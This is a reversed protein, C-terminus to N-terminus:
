RQRVGFFKNNFLARINQIAGKVNNGKCIHALQRLFYAFFNSDSFSLSVRCLLCDRDNCLMKTIDKSIFEEEKKLTEMMSTLVAHGNGISGETKQVITPYIYKSNAELFAKHCFITNEADHWVISDGEKFYLGYKPKIQYNGTEELVNTFAIHTTGTFGEGGIRLCKCDFKNIAEELLWYGRKEHTHSNTLYESHKGIVLFPFELKRSIKVGPYSMAMIPMVGTTPKPPNEYSYVEKRHFFRLQRIYKQPFATLIITGDEGIVEHLAQLFVMPGGEIKGVAKYSIRLFLTDGEKIGIRYFDEKLSEKTIM